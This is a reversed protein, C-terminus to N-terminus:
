KRYNQMRWVIASVQGRTLTNSPRFTSTGNNFYGEVIGAANLAQVYVDSTDTFPKVSSLNNIDLKLAGAALQAVQLRTIPGNLVVNSRTILGDAQAKALYGSFTSGSVTPAQEPYGAALMILKLAAGYTITSDPNFNGNAYGDIVSADALEMVYKYCWTSATIDHFEKRANLVGMSFMGSAIPIGSANMAVYPIEVPGTYNTQPVFRLQGLQETGTNYGYVTSTNAPTTTNGVYVAGVNAAPLKLLQVGSPTAGTAAAVAAAISSAPFTVATNKPTPGYVESVAKGTVSILIGGNVSQGNTGYATFPISACYNAGSPVYTLETLAYETQSAPSVYFNRSRNSATIQERSSAGYRSAGYYNYYLAGAAPVDNFVVYQLTGSPFATKYFRALDNASIQVNTGTTVAYRVSGVLNSTVSATVPTIVLAGEVERGNTGYATFRLTVKGSTFSNAAAFTLDNLAYDNRGADSSNYYFRVDRLGNRSFSVSYSTNYGTYLTGFTDPLDATGPVDFIVYDLSSGSYTKRFFDDFKTRDFNVTKGPTVTYAIDGGDGVKLKLTGQEYDGSDYYARFSMTLTSGDKAAAGPRFSLSSLAYTGYNSTGNYFQTKSYALDSRTLPVNGTYLKGAFSDYDSGAEFAVYKITRSTGSMTQYARNFDDASFTASGGPAAEYTITNADSTVVIRFAGEEYDDRDNSYYARFPITLSANERADRDAQFTVDELLYDNRGADSSSYYFWTEDHTLDALRLDTNGVYLAGDFNRYSDPAYFSVATITRSSYGSLYQYVKNFATKDLRATAGPAVNLTVTDQSGNKDIVIRLTCKVEDDRDYCAWFPIELSDGDKAGSAARFVLEDIGYSDRRDTSYYFWERSLENKTFDARGSVSIKGGFTTYADGPVFEIYNLTRSTNALDQYAQNFDSRSFTVSGGPAVRYVVEGDQKGDKDVAIRLTGDYYTYRDYFRVTMVLEDGVEARSDARFSLTDLAYKGDYRSDTYFGYDDLDNASLSRNGTYIKGDFNKYDSGVAFDVSQLVASDNSLKKYAEEFRATKFNVTGGPAVRLVIDASNTPTGSLTLTGSIQNGYQDAATYAVSLSNSTGPVYYVYGPLDSYSYQNYLSDQRSSHCLKGSGGTSSFKITSFSNEGTLAGFMAAVKSRIDAGVLKGGTAGVALAANQGTANLRYVATYTAAATVATGAPSVMTQNRYGPYSISGKVWGMFTHSGSVASLAPNNPVNAPYADKRVQESSYTGSGVRYAVTYTTSDVQAVQLGCTKCRGDATLTASHGTAPITETYYNKCETCTYRQLGTSTCTAKLTVEGASSGCTHHGIIEAECISCRKAHDVNDKYTWSDPFSHALMPLPRAIGEAICKTCQQRELGEATCTAESVTKWEWDHQGDPCEAALAAPALSALMVLTLLFAPVKKKWFSNM